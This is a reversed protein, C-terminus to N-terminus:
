QEIPSSSGRITLWRTMIHNGDLYDTDSSATSYTELTVRNV